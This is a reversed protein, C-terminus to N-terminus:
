SYERIAQQNRSKRDTRRERKDTHGGAGRKIPHGKVLVTPLAVTIIKSRDVKEKVEFM